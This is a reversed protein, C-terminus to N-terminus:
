SILNPIIGASGLDGVKDVTVGMARAITTLMQNWNAGTGGMNVFRGPSKVTGGLKGVWFTPEPSPGHTWGLYVENGYVVLMNDLMPGGMEQVNSLEDLLGAMHTM